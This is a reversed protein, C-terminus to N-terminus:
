SGPRHARAAEPGSARLEVLFRELITHMASGRDLASLEITHEPDDREGVDLVYTLFYRFGCAAWTELRGCSNPRGM